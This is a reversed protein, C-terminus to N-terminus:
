KVLQIDISQAPTSLKFLCEEYSPPGWVAKPNMSAGVPERPIGLFNKDLKHNDNLDQYVTVVYDGYPLDPIEIEFSETTPANLYNGTLAFNRDRPFGKKDNFLLYAIKGRGAIYGRVNVKLQGVQTVAKEDALAKFSLNIGLLALLMALLARRSVTAVM